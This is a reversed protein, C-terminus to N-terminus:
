NQGFVGQEMKKNLLNNPFCRILLSEAIDIFEPVVRYASFYVAIDALYVEHKILDRKKEYAPVFKQNRSPHDVFMITQLDGRSRNFAANMETWLTQNKAKGVYVSKGMSDFFVYIGRSENLIKKLGGTYNNTTENFLQWNSEKRSLTPDIPYFEVLPSIATQLIRTQVADLTRKIFSASQSPTLEEQCKQSIYGDTVQLLTALERNTRINLADKLTDILEKGLM